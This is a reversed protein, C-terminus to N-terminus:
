SIAEIYCRGFKPSFLNHYVKHYPLSFMEDTLDREGIVNVTVSQESM